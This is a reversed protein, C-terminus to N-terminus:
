LQVECQLGSRGLSQRTDGCDTASGIFDEEDHRLESAWELFTYAAEQHQSDATVCIGHAAFSPKPGAAGGPVVAFGLNGSVKSEEPDLIRGALPAGEMVMVVTGQQM